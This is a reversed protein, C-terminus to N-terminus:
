LRLRKWARSEGTLVDLWGRRTLAFFEGLVRGHVGFAHRAAALWALDLDHPSPEGPRVLWVTGAGPALELLAVLADTRLAWDVAGAERAPVVFTHRAGGLTGVNVSVDFVRRSERSRLLGVEQRLATLRDAAHVRV